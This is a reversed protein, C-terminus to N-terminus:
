RVTVSVTRSYGTEYPFHRGPRIRARFQYRHGRAGSTRFRYSVHFSGKSSSTTDAFTTFHRAGRLKGQVIVPVGGRNVGKLHGSLRFRRGVRPHRTSPKLTAAARAQLTLFANASFRIDNAHSAWAFQLLRSATAAVTTQFTGDSKTVITNRTVSPADSRKDRTILLIKAGGIRAGASSLLRGRVGAHEGYKLTRRRHGGGKTWEVQLTATETANTGNLAGRNSATVAFVPYPGRTSVNGATDTVRVLLQRQGAPLSTPRITERALNPCPAPRSYDCVRRADTRTRAYDEAAVVVPPGTVDLLEARRIGSNDSATLTIPDNGDRYGGALLGSAEVSVSPATPDSITVDSGYLVHAIRGGAAVSCPTGRAFCGARLILQNANGPYANLAPFSRRSVDSRAVSVNNAPYGYWQHQASLANRTPDHFNGAGAFHTAGLSYLLFYRHTKEATPDIFSIARNLAFDAITTGPPSTFTLAAATNNAMTTKPPVTLGIYGGACSADEAVGPVATARWANNAWTGCTYVHYTGAHASQPALLLLTLALTLKKM